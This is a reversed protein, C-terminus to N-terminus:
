PTNRPHNEPLSGAFSGPQTRPRGGPLMSTLDPAIIGVMGFARFDIGAMYAGFPDPLLSVILFVVERDSWFVPDLFV